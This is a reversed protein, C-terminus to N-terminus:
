PSHREVGKSKVDGCYENLEPQYGATLAEGQKMYSGRGKGYERSGECYYNGTQRDAWVMVGTSMRPGVPQAVLSGLRGRIGPIFSAALAGALVLLFVVLWGFSSRRPGVRSGSSPSPQQASGNPSM